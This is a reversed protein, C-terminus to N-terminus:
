NIYIHSKMREGDDDVFQRNDYKTFARRDIKAKPIEPKHDVRVNRGNASVGETVDPCIQLFCKNFAEKYLGKWKRVISSRQLRNFYAGCRVEEGFCSLLKITGSQM